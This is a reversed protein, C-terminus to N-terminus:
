RAPAALAFMAGQPDMCQIIWSGGPVEMPGNLVQGGGSRVREAAADIAEVNFYFLWAPAPVQEPMNMMGGTQQGDVAFLQYTGMPGMDMAEDKTWGFQGSYFDLAAQWDSTYLEHWGVRGPATAPLTPGGDGQPAFLLFVAGQPDAVVSFRGVGAIDSPERHVAGGAKRVGETAGDVNAAHIYGLWAPPQGMARAEQPIEMIGGLGVEGTKMIRYLFDSGPFAEATWGVVKTYFAEAAEVDSTMLEYWVFNSAM